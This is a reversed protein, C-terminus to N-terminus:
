VAELVIETMLSARDTDFLKELARGIRDDNIYDVQEFKLNFLNPDFPTVWEKFGYVPLRGIIINRLFIGISTHPMIHNSSDAYPMACKLIEDIDLRDIFHNIIPLADISKSKLELFEANDM